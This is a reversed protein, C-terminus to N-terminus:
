ARVAPKLTTRTVTHSVGVDYAEYEPSAGFYSALVANRVLGLLRSAVFSAMLIGAAGALQRFRSSHPSTTVMPARGM